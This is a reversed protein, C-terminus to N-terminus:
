FKPSSEFLAHESDFEKTSEIVKLFIIKSDGNLEGIAQHVKKLLFPPILIFNRPRFVTRTSPDLAKIGELTMMEFMSTMTPVQVATDEVVNKLVSIDPTM